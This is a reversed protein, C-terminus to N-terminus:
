EMTQAKASQTLADISANVEIFIRDRLGREMNKLMNEIPYDQHQLLLDIEPNYIDSELRGFLPMQPIREALALQEMFKPMFPYKSTDLHEWAALRTPIQGLESAWRRQVPESTFYDLIEFALEPNECRRMIVGTQGGVNSSSWAGIGLRERDEPAAHPELDLREIEERSPAPILAIDFDIGGNAFNEVMWPGTLIMAYKQNIFGAEPFLASRKWAGGEIGSMALQRMRELAVQGNENVVSPTARGQADYEVFDVGYMNFMPFNFWLSGSMGYAHIGNAKDTIVKGYALMEDWDRPPRTPDLGAERLAQAKNRFIACNWFLSVTTTQVPLGYLHVEGMRNVVASDFSARVFDERARDISQYIQKFADLEDVKVLAQGFALDTVKIADVFAIDPTLDALSATRLKTIMDDYSVYHVIVELPEEHSANWQDEFDQMIERFVVTEEPKFAQWIEIREPADSMRESRHCGLPIFVSLVCALLLLSGIWPHWSDRLPPTHATPMRM